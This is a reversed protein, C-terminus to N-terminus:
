VSANLLACCVLVASCVPDARPLPGLRGSFSWKMGVATGVKITAFIFAFVRLGDDPHTFAPLQAEPLTLLLRHADRRLSTVHNRM